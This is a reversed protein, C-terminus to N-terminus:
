YRTFKVRVLFEKEGDDIKVPFKITDIEELSKKLKQIVMERTMAKKLMPHFAFMKDKLFEIQAHAYRRTIEPNKHGIICSLWFWDCGQKLMTTIFSHRFTHCTVHKTIGKARCRRKLDLNVEELDLTGGRGSVFVSKKELHFDNLKLLMEHMESSIPCDRHEASKTDRFRCFDSFVNEWTLELAEGIRCGTQGLFLILTKQRKNIFTWEKKYDIKVTALSKIEDPTLTEKNFIQAEKFRTYGKLEIADLFADILLGMTIYKNCTSDSTGKAKIDAIFNNFLTRSWEQGNFYKALILFRSKSTYFSRAKDSFKKEILLFAKFAEWQGPRLTM